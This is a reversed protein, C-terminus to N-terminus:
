SERRGRVAITCLGVASSFTSNKGPIRTCVPMELSPLRKHFTQPAFIFPAVYLNKEDASSASGLGYINRLKDNGNPHHVLSSETPAAIM